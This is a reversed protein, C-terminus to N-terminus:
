AGDVLDAFDDDADDNLVPEPDVDSEMEAAGTDEATPDGDPDEDRRQAAAYDLEPTTM